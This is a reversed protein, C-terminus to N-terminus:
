CWRGRPFSHRERRKGRLPPLSLIRRDSGDPQITYYYADDGVGRHYGLIYKSDPTWGILSASLSNPSLM